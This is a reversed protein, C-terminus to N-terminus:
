ERRGLEILKINNQKLLSIFDILQEGKRSVRSLSDVIVTDIAREEILLFLKQMGTRKNLPLMGSTKADVIINLSHALHEAYKEAAVKQSNLSEEHNACIYFVSQNNKGQTHKM